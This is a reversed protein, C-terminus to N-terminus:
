EEEEKGKHWKFHAIPDGKQINRLDWVKFSGDDSGTALLYTVNSLLDFLLSFSLVIVHDGM